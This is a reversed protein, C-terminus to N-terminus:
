AAGSLRGDFKPPNSVVLKLRPRKHRKNHALLAKFADRKMTATRTNHHLYVKSGDLEVIVNRWGCGLEQLEKEAEIYVRIKYGYPRPWIDPRV